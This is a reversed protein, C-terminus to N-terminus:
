SPLRPAAVAAHKNRKTHHRGLCYRVPVALLWWYEAADSSIIVAVPVSSGFVIAVGVAHQLSQAILARPILSVIRRDRDRDRTRYRTRTDARERNRPLGGGLAGM